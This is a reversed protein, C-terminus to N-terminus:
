AERLPGVGVDALRKRVVFATLGQITGLNQELVEEDAVTVGFEEQLFELLEMVGMSDIIGRQLLRDGDGLELDPQAYLFVERIYARIRAAVDSSNRSM